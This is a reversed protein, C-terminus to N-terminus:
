GAHGLDQRRDTEHQFRSRGGLRHNRRSRSEAGASSARSGAVCRTREPDQELARKEPKQWSFGWRHLLKGVWNHDYWIGSQRGIVERVRVTTWRGDPFRQLDPGRQLTDLLEAVQADNLKTPRGPTPTAELSGRLRLRRRWVRITSAKVGFNEALSATTRTTDPLLPQIALRREELQQRTLCSPHWTQPM